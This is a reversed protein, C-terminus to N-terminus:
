ARVGEHRREENRAEELEGNVHKLSEREGAHSRDLLLTGIADELSGEFFDRALIQHDAAHEVLWRHDM